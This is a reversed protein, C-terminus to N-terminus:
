RLALVENAGSVFLGPRPGGGIAYVRGGFASLGLGHRPTPLDPLRRWRRTRTNLGYVTAITGGPAEGGASVITTGVAAAATGGRAGPVPPLRTWGKSGPRYVETHALNTDLGATRGAIAYVRGAASTVALHERPTPGPITSWRRRQLDFALGRQALRPSGTGVGGVVYLKNGVIAAGAAARPEPLAPLSSWRGNAFAFASRLREGNGGYGGVVYLRGGHGAAVSHNVALPLDPLRRWTNRAPAYADVRPSTAGDALYGGVVVIEKGLVAVAVETRPLPLPAARRWQQVASAVAAAPVLAVALGVVAARLM